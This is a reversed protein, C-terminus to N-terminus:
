QREHTEKEKPREALEAREERCKRETTWISILGIALPISGFAILGSALGWKAGIGIAILLSGGWYGAFILPNFKKDM